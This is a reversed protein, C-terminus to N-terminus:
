SSDWGSSDSSDEEDSAGQTAMSLRQMTEQISATSRSKSGPGPLRGAARGRLTQTSGGRLMSSLLQGVSGGSRGDDGGSSRGDGRGDHNGRRVKGGKGGMGSKTTRSKGREKAGEETRLRQQEYEARRARNAAQRREEASIRSFSKLFDYLARLSPGADFSFSAGSPPVECLFIALQNSHEQLQIQLDELKQLERRSSELIPQASAVFAASLRQEEPSTSPHDVAEACLQQEEDLSTLDHKIQLCVAYEVGLHPLYSLLKTHTRACTNM